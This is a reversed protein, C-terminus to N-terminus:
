PHPHRSWADGSPFPRWRARHVPGRGRVSRVPSSRPRPRGPGGAGSRRHLRSPADPWSGRSAAVAFWPGSSKPGGAGRSVPRRAPAVSTAVVTLVFGVSRRPALVPSPLWAARPFSQCCAAWRLHEPVQHNVARPPRPRSAPPCTGAGSRPAGACRPASWPGARRGRSRCRCGGQCALKPGGTQLRVATSTALSVSRAARFRSRAGARARPRFTRAMVVAPSVAVLGRRPGRDKGRARSPREPVVPTGGPWAGM